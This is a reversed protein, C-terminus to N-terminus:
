VFIAQDKSWASMEPILGSVEAPESQQGHSVSQLLRLRRSGTVLSPPFGLVAGSLVGSGGIIGFGVGM